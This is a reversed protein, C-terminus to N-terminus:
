AQMGPKGYEVGRMLRLVEGILRTVGILWAADSGEGDIREGSGKCREAGYGGLSGAGCMEAEIGVCAKGEDGVVAVTNYSDEWDICFSPEAV